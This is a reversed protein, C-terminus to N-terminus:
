KTTEKRQRIKKGGDAMTLGLQRRPAPVYARREANAGARQGGYHKAVEVSGGLTKAFPYFTVYIAYALISAGTVAGVSVLVIMTVTELM